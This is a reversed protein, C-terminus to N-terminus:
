KSFASLLRVYMAQYYIAPESLEWSSEPWVRNFDAYTKGRPQTKIWEVSPAGDAAKGTYSQNPGGVVYGPAPNVAFPSNVNYREHYIRTISLEAGYAKMNSLYVISLPNVGHFSHLMDAARTKLRIKTAASATSNDAALLAIIGYSARVINSGWHYSGPVMWARYLDASPDPAWQASEASRLLQAKIKAVLTADAGPLKIYSILAEAAGAEYPSWTWEALQRTTGAKAKIVDNYKKEGTLAFLHVACFVEFHDQEEKSRNAIGSKIEGTDSNYTRPNTQFWNWSLIARRQLDAAYTKWAPFKGYVRAAHAFNAATYIAAGSDKPGYYRTRKDESLPYKGNYDINGMKVPVAGDPFQMKVLWDLQVKVEDLIDPLGNGSEPINNADGFATPNATYAFLLPHLVDGNFPPYKNTDGADMWGGSLNREQSADDKAMVNRAKADQTLAAAEAWTGANTSKLQVGLRQYYFMRSAVTLIPSFVAADIKFVPSRRKTLADYIYYEGPTNVATFDFWWGRDGSDEHIAGGNWAVTSGTFVTVSDKLRRVELTKGPVYADAANYGKQPDSIVAFKASDPVYGFQDVHIRGTLAPHNPITVGTLRPVAYAPYGTQGQILLVGLAALMM